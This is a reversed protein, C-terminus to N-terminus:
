LIVNVVKKLYKGDSNEFDVRIESIRGTEAVVQGNEVKTIKQNTYVRIVGSSGPIGETEIKYQNGSLRASIVRLGGAPDGPKPDTIVPLVSIGNEVGFELKTGSELTFKSVLTTYQPTKMSAIQAETGNLSASKLTTGAPFAPLFEINIRKGRVPLFEFIYQSGDRHYRFNFVQDGIRINRVNLSDWDAPLHPALIVKNEQARVDLGLLGEIAPQLVMTESWCQHPCVGSELYESGNLVEEVFGLGWNKYVNLNNMLHMYGQQYNGYAYEAMSTWGTFLPWVSGYHYGKPNFLKSDDRIIRSGWNTSFANSAYQQLVMKARGQDGQRFSLPVAPL